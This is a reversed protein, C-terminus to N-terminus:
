DYLEDDAPTDAPVVRCDSPDGDLGGPGYMSDVEAQAEEPSHYWDDVYKDTNDSSVKQDAWGNVSQVQIKWMNAPNASAFNTGSMSAFEAEAGDPDHVARRDVADNYLGPEQRAFAEDIKHRTKSM